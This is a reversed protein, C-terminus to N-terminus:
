FGPPPTIEAPEGFKSLTMVMEFKAPGTPLPLQSAEQTQGAEGLDVEGTMTMKRPLHDAVGVYMDIKFDSGELDLETAPITAAYHWVQIGDLSEAGVLALDTVPADEGALFEDGLFDNPSFPAIGEAGTTEQWLGTQPDKFWSTEGIQVFETDIAFGLVSASLSGRMKDPSQYDGDFKFPIELTLGQASVTMDLDMDVHFSGAADLAVRMSEALAAAAPATVSVPTPTPEPTPTPTPPVPTATAVQTPTATPSALPAECAVLALAIVGIFLPLLRRIM